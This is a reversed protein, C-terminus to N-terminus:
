KGERHAASAAMLARLADPLEDRRLEMMPNGIGNVRKVLYVTEGWVHATFPGGGDYVTRVEANETAVRTPRAPAVRQRARLFLLWFAGAEPTAHARMAMDCEGLNAPEAGALTLRADLERWYRTRHDSIMM